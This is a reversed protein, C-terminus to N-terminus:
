RAWCRGIDPDALTWDIVTAGSGFSLRTTKNPETGGVQVGLVKCNGDQAQSRGSTATATVTYTTPTPPDIVALSYYGSSTSLALGLGAPPAGDLNGNFSPHSGRWREQAQQIATLASFADARRSKRVSDMFSPYAIAVLVGMILVAIMLEVLTFGRALRRRDTPHSPFFMVSLNDVARRATDRGNMTVSLGDM